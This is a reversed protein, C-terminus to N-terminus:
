MLNTNLLIRRKCDDPSYGTHLLCGNFLLLRNERPKVSTLINLKSSSVENLDDQTLCIKDYIVTESQTNTLYFITTINEKGCEMDIHPTHRIKTKSYVTMDLRCKVINSKETVEILGCYFGRLVSYLYSDIIDGAETLIGHQFGFKSQNSSKNIYTINDAYWWPFNENLIEDRISTYYSEPLFKDIVLYQDNPNNM